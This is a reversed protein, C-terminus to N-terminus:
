RTFYLYVYANIIPDTTKTHNTEEANGLGVDLANSHFMCYFLQKQEHLNVATCYSESLWVTSWVM